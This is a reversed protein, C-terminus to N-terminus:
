CQRIVVTARLARQGSRATDIHGVRIRAIVETAFGLLDEHAYLILLAYLAAPEIAESHLILREIASEKSRAGWDWVRGLEVFLM